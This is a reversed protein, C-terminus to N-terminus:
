LYHALGLFGKKMVKKLSVFHAHFGFQHLHRTLLKSFRIGIQRNSQVGGDNLTGPLGTAPYMSSLDATITNGSTTFPVSTWNGSGAPYQAQLTGTNVTLGQTSNIEFKVDKLNGAGASNVRFEYILPECLGSLPTAPQQVTEVQVSGLQPTFTM